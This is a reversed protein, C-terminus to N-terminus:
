ADDSLGMAVGSSKALSRQRLDPHQVQLSAGSSAGDELALAGRLTPPALLDLPRPHFPAVLEQRQTPRRRQDRDIVSLPISVTNM